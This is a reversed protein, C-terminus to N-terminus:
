FCQCTLELVFKPSEIPGVDSFSISESVWHYGLEISILKYQYGAKINAYQYDFQNNLDFHGLTARWFSQSSIPRSYSAELAISRSDTAYYDDSVDFGFGFGSSHSSQVTLENFDWERAAGVFSRRKIYIGTFWDENIPHEWGLYGDVNRHRQRLGDNKADRFAIGSVWSSSLRYEANIGLSPNEGTESLGHYIWDSSLRAYVSLHENAAAYKAFM